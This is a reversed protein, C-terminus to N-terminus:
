PAVRTLEDLGSSPRWYCSGARLPEVGHLSQPSGRFMSGSGGLFRSIAPSMAVIATAGYRSVVPHQGLDQVRLGIAIAFAVGVTVVALVSAVAREPDAGESGRHRRPRRPWRWPSCAPPCWPGWLIGAATVSWSTMAAPAVPYGPGGSRGLARDCMSWTACSRWGRPVSATSRVSNTSAPSGATPRAGRSSRRRPSPGVGTPTPQQRHRRGVGGRVPMPSPDGPTSPDGPPTSISSGMAPPTGPSAIGVVVQEGDAVRGAMNQGTLGRTWRGAAAELADALTVRWTVAPHSSVGVVSVVVPADPAPPQRGATLHLQHFRSSLLFIQPYSRHSTTDPWRSSPSWSPSSDSSGSRLSAQAVRTPASQRSGIRRVAEPTTRSGGPCRRTRQMTPTPSRTLAPNEPWAAACETPRCNPECAEVTPAGAPEGSQTPRSTTAPQPRIENQPHRSRPAFLLFHQIPSVPATAGPVSANWHAVRVLWWLEPGTFRILLRAAAPWLTTLAAIM